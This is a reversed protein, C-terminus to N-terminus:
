KQAEKAAAMWGKRQREGLEEWTPLDKYEFSKGGVARKYSNWLRRALKLQKEEMPEEQPKPQDYIRGSLWAMQCMLFISVVALWLTVGNQWRIFTSICVYPLLIGAVLLIRSAWRGGVLKILKDVMSCEAINTSLAPAYSTPVRGVSLGPENIDTYPPAQGLLHCM